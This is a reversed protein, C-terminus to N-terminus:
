RLAHILVHGDVRELPPIGLVRAFTPAIDVVRAFESYHGPRFASGWLVLPVHADEDNPTGHTANTTGEWYAHPELSVVLEVPLEASLMHLWRRAIADHVTDAQALSKVFDVRGVGPVKRV